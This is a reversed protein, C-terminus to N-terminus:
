EPLKKATSYPCEDELRDIRREMDEIRQTNTLVTDRMPDHQQNVREIIAEWRGEWRGGRWAGVLIGAVGGGALSLLTAFVLLTDPSM